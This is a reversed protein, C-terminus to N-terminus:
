EKIKLPPDSPNSSRALPNRLLKIRLDNWHQEFAARATEFDRSRLADLLEEHEDVMDKPEHYYAQRQLLLLEIEGELVDYSRQLRTSGGAEIIARHFDKDAAVLLSSPANRPAEKMVKAAQVAGAPLLGNLVIMRVAEGELVGRLRTIDVIDDPGFEPIYFGRNVIQGLMRQNVLVLAATRFTHRSVKYEDAMKVDRLFAGPEFDGNLIRFKLKEALSDVATPKPPCHNAVAEQLVSVSLKDSMDM